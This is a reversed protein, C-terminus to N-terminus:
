IVAAATNLARAIAAYRGGARELWIMGARMEDAQDARGQDLVQKRLAADYAHEPAKSYRGMIPGRVLAQIEAPAVEAQLLEFAQALGAEPARLFREFDIWLTRGESRKATEELSIMESAWSMAIMEGPSLSWLRFSDEGIARHLRRLRMQGVDRIDHISHTAGLISALFPEIQAFMLIARAAPDRALLRPGLVSTFSTGKVLAKQDPRWTRSWLSAFQGLRTEFREPSITSHPLALDIELAALTRLPTPERLSLIRRHEGLLRSLLTSGVHSIHFIWDTSRAPVPTGVQHLFDQWRAWQGAKGPALARQDLFSASRFEAETLRVVYVM